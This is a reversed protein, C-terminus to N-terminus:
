NLKVSNNVSPTTLNLTHNYQPGSYIVFRFVDSRTLHMIYISWVLKFAVMIVLLVILIPVANRYCPTRLAIWGFTLKINRTRSISLGMWICLFVMLAVLFIVKLTALKQASSGPHFTGVASLVLTPFFLATFFLLMATNEKVYLMAQLMEPLQYNQGCPLVFTIMNLRVAIFLFTQQRYIIHKRYGLPTQTVAM